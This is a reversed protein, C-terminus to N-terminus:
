IHILSLDLVLPSTAVEAYSSMQKQTFNSGQALDTASESAQVGFFLRTTATFQPTMLYTAAAAAGTVVVILTVVTLWRRRLLRIYDRLEM